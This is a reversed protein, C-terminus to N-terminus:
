NEQQTPQNNRKKDRKDYSEEVHNVIKHADLLGSDEIDKIFSIVLGYSKIFDNLNKQTDNPEGGDPLLNSLSRSLKATASKLPTLVEQIRNGGTKV